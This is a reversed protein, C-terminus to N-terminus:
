SGTSGENNQQRQWYWHLIASSILLPELLFLPHTLYGWLGDAIIQQPPWGFMTMSFPYLLPTGHAVVDLLLHSFGGLAALGIIMQLFPWYKKRYLVYWMLGLGLYPFLSHTWLVSHNIFGRVLINYIVDIDPAVTSAIATVWLISRRKRFWDVQWHSRSLSAAFYGPVIHALLMTTKDFGIQVKLDAIHM